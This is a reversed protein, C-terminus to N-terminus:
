EMVGGAGGSGQTAITVMAGIGVREIKGALLIEGGVDVEGGNFVGGTVESELDVWGHVLAAVESVARFFPEEGAGARGFDALELGEDVGGLESVAEVGKFESFAVDLAGEWLFVQM